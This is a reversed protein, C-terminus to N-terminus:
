SFEPQSNITVAPNVAYKVLVQDGDKVVKRIFGRSNTKENIASFMENKSNPYEETYQEYTLIKKVRGTLFGDGVKPTLDKHTDYWVENVLVYVRNQNLHLIEHTMVIQKSM